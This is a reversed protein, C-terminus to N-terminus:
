FKNAFALGSATTYGAGKTANELWASYDAQRLANEVLVDRYTKESNGCFFMIHSGYTSDVVGTDGPQRSEDYCWSEFSEVMQGPYVNEYKTAESSTGDAVLQDSLKAFAEESTDGGALFEALLDEAKTHAEAVLTEDSSDSVPILIHRVNKTLEDHADRSIFYVVYYGSSSELCATDGEARATDFLWDAIDSPCASYRQDSSLTASDEEYTSKSDEPAYALAQEVFSQEDSIAALMADADAKAKGMQLTTQAEKQEDTLEESSDSEAAYDNMNFYYSRFTVGDFDNTNDAYEADIQDATYTRQENLSTAYYQAVTGVRLFEEYSKLDCGAGYRAVLFSDASSYGYLTAYTSIMSLQSQLTAEQDDTLTFGNAVAEDYIAYSQAANQLGQDVFYAYWTQTNENDVYQKSLSTNTDFFISVYSGYNNSFTTYADNAYYNVMAPTLKHGDVTAATTHKAFFGTSLMSFFVVAAIVVVAIVVTLATKAGKSMGKKESQVDQVGSQAQEKRKNKERSASM